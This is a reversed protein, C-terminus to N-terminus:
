LDELLLHFISGVYLLLNSVLGPGAGGGGGGQLPSEGAGPKVLLLLRLCDTQGSQVPVTGLSKRVTM